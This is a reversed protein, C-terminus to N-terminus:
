RKDQGPTFCWELAAPPLPKNSLLCVQDYMGHCIVKGCKCCTKKYTFTNGSHVAYMDTECEGKCRTCWDTGLTSFPNSTSTFGQHYWPVKDM